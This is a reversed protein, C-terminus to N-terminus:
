TKTPVARVKAMAIVTPPIRTGCIRRTRDSRRGLNKAYFGRVSRGNGPLSLRFEACFGFDGILLGNTGEQHVLGSWRQRGRRRSNRKVPTMPVRPRVIPLRNLSCAAAAAEPVATLAGAWDTM